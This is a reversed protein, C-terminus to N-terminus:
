DDDGDESAARRRLEELAAIDELDRPRGAARKLAILDDLSAVPAETTDLIARVARASAATFDFPVEAFIDVEFGPMRANWLSFVTMGRREVWDRRVDDDALQLAPVPARPRFGLATLAEVARTVNDKKLEVVLDLDATTRLHGHLVVAVGGVILYRVGAGNLASLVTEVHGAM